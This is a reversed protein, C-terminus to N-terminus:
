RQGEGGGSRAASRPDAAAAFQGEDRGGGAKTFGRQDAFPDGTAELGEGQVLRDFDGPQRQVFAIVIEGTKQSVEDRSHLRNRRLKAFPHQSRKLGRLRRWGFRKQCGQEILDGGDGISEDEHQIVVMHKIGLRDISASAKRTSCRGGCICRTM